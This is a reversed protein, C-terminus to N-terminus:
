RAVTSGFGKRHGGGAPFWSSTVPVADVLFDFDSNPAAEGRAVSGFIRINRAGHKAAIRRIEDRKADLLEIHTHTGPV